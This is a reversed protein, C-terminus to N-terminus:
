RSVDLVGDPPLQCAPCPRRYFMLSAACEQCCLPAGTHPRGGHVMTMHARRARCVLCIRHPAVFPSTLVSISDTGGVRLHRRSMQSEALYELSSFPQYPIEEEPEAVPIPKKEAMRFGEEYCKDCLDYECQGCHYMIESSHLTKPKKTPHKSTCNDCQWLGESQPYTQGPECRELPHLLHLPHPSPPIGHCQRCLTFACQPKTCHYHLEKSSRRITTYCHSCSATGTPAHMSPDRLRVLNHEHMFHKEGIFCKTCLDFDGCESCHFVVQLNKGITNSAGCGDCDWGTYQRYVLRADMPKLRHGPRNHLVHAWGEDFCISCLDTKCESCHFCHRESYTGGSHVRTCGTCKWRGEDEQYILPARARRVRHHHFPHLHGKFCQTCIDYQCLSCHYAQRNDAEEEQTATKSAHGDFERQCADCRWQAKYTAYVERLDTKLLPHLHLPHNRKSRVSLERVDSLQTAM